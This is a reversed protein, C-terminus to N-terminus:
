ASTRSFRARLKRWKGVLWLTARGVPQRLFPIDIALLLLGLPLFEIGVVPMFWFVSCAVFFVGAGIRLWKATPGRLWHITRALWNPLESELEEFAEDLTQDGKEQDSM